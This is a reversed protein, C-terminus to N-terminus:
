QHDLRKSVCFLPMIVCNAAHQCISDIRFTNKEAHGSIEIGAKGRGIFIEHRAKDGCGHFITSRDKKTNDTRGSGEFIKAAFVM